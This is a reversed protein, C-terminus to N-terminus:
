GSAIRGRRRLQRRLFRAPAVADVLDREIPAPEGCVIAPLLEAALAAWLLGRSGFGFAGYMGPALPIPLRDNAALAAVIPVTAAEDPLPGIAPLHDSLVYRFGVAAPGACAAMPEQALGLMRGLRQLNGADDDPDPLPSDSRGFSAGVLLRGDGAGSPCAYAMGGLVTRLGALTPEHLWTSQGRTRQLPLSALGGLRPADGANALVVVPAAGLMRGVADRATWGLGAPDHDLRTV